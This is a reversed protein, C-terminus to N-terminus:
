ARIGDDETSEWMWYKMLCEKRLLLLCSFFGVQVVTLVPPLTDGKTMDQPPLLVYLHHAPADSLTQLDDPTNRYHSSVLLGMVQALFKESVKLSSFNDHPITLQTWVINNRLM